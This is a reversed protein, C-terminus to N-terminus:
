VKKKLQQRDEWHQPNQKFHSVLFRLHPPIFYVRCKIRSYNTVRGSPLHRLLLPLLPHPAVFLFAHSNGALKAVYSSGTKLLYLHYLILCSLWRPFHDDLILHMLKDLLCFKPQGYLFQTLTCMMFLSPCCGIFIFRYFSYSRLKIPFLRSKVILCIETITINNVLKLQICIFKIRRKTIPSSGLIKITSPLNQAVSSNGPEWM